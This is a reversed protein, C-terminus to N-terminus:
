SMKNLLKTKFRDDFDLKKSEIDLVKKSLIENLKNHSYIINDIEECNEIYPVWKGVPVIYINVAPEYVHLLESAKKAELETSYVGRIKFGRIILEDKQNHEKNFQDRLSSEKTLLWEKYTLEINDQDTDLHQKMEDSYTKTNTQNWKLITKYENTWWKIFESTYFKELQRVLNSNQPEVFSVLAFTQNVIPTDIKLFDNNQNM